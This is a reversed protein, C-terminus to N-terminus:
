LGRGSFHGSGPGLHGLVALGVHNHSLEMRLHAVDPRGFDMTGMRSM